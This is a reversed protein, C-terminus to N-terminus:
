PPMSPFGRYSDCSKKWVPFGILCGLLLAALGVLGLFSALRDLGRTLDEEYEEVTEDRIRHADLLSDRAELFRDAGDPEDFRFYALYRAVSGFRLLGTEELYEASIYARPGIASRLGIDGPVSTVTGAIVFRAEGIALTDGLGADLQILVAPDVLVSRSERFDQWLGPPETEIEGYYPYGGSLARIQLLRTLGTRSALAMSSFTTVRSVDVGESLLSDIVAEVTDPYRFRSRLELDAGLLDRAEERVASTVNSRFSNIAVLAAVGLTIATIYLALRRRTARGERRAM